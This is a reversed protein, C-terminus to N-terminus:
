FALLLDITHGAIGEEAYVWLSLMKSWLYEAMNMAATYM